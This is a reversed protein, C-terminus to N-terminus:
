RSRERTGGEVKRKLSGCTRGDAYVAAAGPPHSPRHAISRVGASRGRREWHARRVRRRDTLTRLARARAAQDRQGYPQRRM